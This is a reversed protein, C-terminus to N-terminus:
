YEQRSFGVALPPQLAANWLTVPTLCSKVVLNDGGGWCVCVCICIYIYTNIHKNQQFKKGWTM